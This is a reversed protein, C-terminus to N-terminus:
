ISQHTKFTKNETQGEQKGANAKVQKHYLDLRIQQQNTLTSKPPQNKLRARDQNAILMRLQAEDATASQVGSSVAAKIVFFLVILGIIILIM